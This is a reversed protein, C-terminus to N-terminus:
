PIALHNTTIPSGQFSLQFSSRLGSSSVGAVSGDAYAINNVRGHRAMTWSLPTNKSLLLLGSKVPTNSVAFNDDGFLIMQPYIERADVNVFYSIHSNNFDNQFNTAGINHDLDAPCIVVWPIALQNSMVQFWAAVNGALLAKTRAENVASLSANTSSQDDWDSSALSIQKLKNVCNIQQARRMAGALMPLLLAVALVLLLVIVVLVEWITLAWNRRNLHGLKM